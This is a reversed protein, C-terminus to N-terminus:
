QETDTRVRMTGSHMADIHQLFNHRMQCGVPLVGADAETAIM